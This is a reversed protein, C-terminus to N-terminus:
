RNAGPRRWRSPMVIDGSTKWDLPRGRVPGPEVDFFAAAEVHDQVHQLGHVVLDVRYRGPVLLVEDICCEYSTEAEPDDRDESSALASNFTVLPQGLHNFITIVCSVGAVLQSLHVVFNAPRGTVLRGDGIDSSIDLRTTRVRGWGSRDRRNLLDNTSTAELAGLYTSVADDIEADAVIAGHEFLIGRHCLSQILSMNHSVFLVTRGEGHVDGMKGLCKKQFEPDGVALVEDVILIEPELHAAVAFALRVQM